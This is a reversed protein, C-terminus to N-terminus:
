PRPCSLNNTVEDEIALFGFNYEKELDVERIHFARARPDDNVLKALEYARSINGKWAEINALLARTAYDEPESNLMEECIKTAEEAELRGKPYLFGAYSYKLARLEDADTETEIAERYVDLLQNFLSTKWYYERIRTYGNKPEYSTTKGLQAMYKVIDSSQKRITKRTAM